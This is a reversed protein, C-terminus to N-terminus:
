KVTRPFMEKGFRLSFSKSPIPVSNTFTRFISSFFELNLTKLATFPTDDAWVLVVNKYLFWLLKFILTPYLVVYSVVKFLSNYKSGDSDKPIPKTDPTPIPLVMTNEFGPEPNVDIVIGVLDIYRGFCPNFVPSITVYLVYPPDGMPTEVFPIDVSKLIVLWDINYM